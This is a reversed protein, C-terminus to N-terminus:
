IARLDYKINQIKRYASILYSVDKGYEASLGKADLGMKRADAIDAYYAKEDIKEYEKIYRGWAEFGVISGDIWEEIEELVKQCRHVRMYQERDTVIREENKRRRYWIYTPLGVLFGFGVMVLHRQIDIHFVNASITLSAIIAITAGICVITDIKM